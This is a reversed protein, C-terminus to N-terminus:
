VGGSCPSQNQIEKEINKGRRKKNTKRCICYAFFCRFVESNESIGATLNRRRKERQKRRTRKYDGIKPNKIM